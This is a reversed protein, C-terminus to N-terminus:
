PQIVGKSQLNRIRSALGVAGKRELEQVLVAAPVDNLTTQIEYEVVQPLKYNKAGGSTEKPSQIQLPNEVLNAKVLQTEKAKVFSSQQLLLVFDNVGEFSNATGVISLKDIPVSVVPAPTGNPAPPPTANANPAPALVQSSQQIKKVQVGGPIRDRIDQLIASWPRIKNFVNGLALTEAKTAEIQTTLSVIQDDYQKLRGLEGDLQAQKQELSANQQQMFFWLGGALAPLFLGMAVGVYLPILAGSPASVTRRRAGGRVSKPQYDPRDKLFNIDLSYM